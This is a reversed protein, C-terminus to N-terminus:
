AAPAPAPAPEPSPTDGGSSSSGGSSQQNVLNSEMNKLYELSTELQSLNDRDQPSIVDGPAPANIRISLQAYQAELDRIRSRVINLQTVVDLQDYQYPTTTSM